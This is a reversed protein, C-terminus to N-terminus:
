RPGFRPGGHGRPGFLAGFFTAAVIGTAVAVLVYQGDIYRWGYDPPPAELGRAQWDNVVYAEGQYRPPLAAGPVLVAGTVAMPPAIVCGSLACTWLLVALVAATPKLTVFRM